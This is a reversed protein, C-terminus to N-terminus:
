VAGVAEQLGPNHNQGTICSDYLQREMAIAMPYLVETELRMHSELKVMFAQLLVPLRAPFGKCSGTFARKAAEMVKGMSTKLRKEIKYMRISICITVSGGAFDPNVDMGRLCAENRLIKPFLVNEEEQLYEQFAQEFEPWLYYLERLWGLTESDIGAEQHLAYTIASFDAQLFDRDEKCLYDLLLDAQEHEWNLDRGPVPLNCLEEAFLLWDVGASQCLDGIGVDRYTWPNMAHKAFLELAYPRYKLITHVSTDPFVWEDISTM